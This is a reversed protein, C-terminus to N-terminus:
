SIFKRNHLEVGSHDFKARTLALLVGKEDNHKRADEQTNGRERINRTSKKAKGNKFGGNRCRQQCRNVNRLMKENVVPM